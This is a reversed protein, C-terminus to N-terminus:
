PSGPPALTVGPPLAEPRAAERFRARLKWLLFLVAAGVAIAPYDGLVTVIASFLFLFSLLGAALALRFEPDGGEVGRCLALGLLVSVLTGALVLAFPNRLFVPGLWFTGFWLFVWLGALYGARRPTPPPNRPTAFPWRTPAIRALGVLAAVVSLFLALVAPSPRYAGDFLVFMLGLTLLYAFLLWGITRDRV